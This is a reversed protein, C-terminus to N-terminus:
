KGDGEETPKNVPELTREGTSPDITWHHTKDIHTLRHQWDEENAFFAVISGAFWFITGSLVVGGVFAVWEQSENQQTM